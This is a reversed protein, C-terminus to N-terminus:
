VVFNKSKKSNLIEISYFKPNKAPKTINPDNKDLNKWSKQIKM